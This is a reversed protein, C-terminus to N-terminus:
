SIKKFKRQRVVLSAAGIVLVASLIELPFGPISGEEGSVGFYAVFVPDHVLRGGGSEGFKPYSTIFFAATENPKFSNWADDFPIGDTFQNTQNIAYSIVLKAFDGMLPLMGSVFEIFEMDDNVNLSEYYVPYTGMTSGNLYTIEYTPKQSFKFDFAHTGGLTTQVETLGTKHTSANIEGKALDTLAYDQGAMIFSWTGLALAWEDPMYGQDGDSVEVWDATENEKIMLTGFNGTEYDQFLTSEGLATDIELTYKYSIYTQNGIASSGEIYTGPDEYQFGWEFGIITGNDSHNTRPVYFIIDTYNYGWTYTIVSGAVSRQLPATVTKPNSKIGVIDRMESTTAGLYFFPNIEEGDDYLDNSNNDNFGFWACHMSAILIESGNLYVHQWWFQTPTTYTSQEGSEYHSKNIFALMGMEFNGEKIWKVNWTNNLWSTMNDVEPHDWRSNNFVMTDWYGEDFTNGPGFLEEVTPLDGQARSEFTFLGLVLVIGFILAFTRSKQYNKM